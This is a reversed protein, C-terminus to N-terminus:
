KKKRLYDDLEKKAQIYDSDNEDIKFVKKKSKKEVEEAHWKVKGIQIFEEESYEKTKDSTTASLGVCPLLTLVSILFCASEHFVLFFIMPIYSILIIVYLIIGTFYIIRQEWYKSCYLKRFLFVLIDFHIFKILKWIGIFVFAVLRVFFYIAKM